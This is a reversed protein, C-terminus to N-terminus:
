LTGLGKAVIFKMYIKNEYKKTAGSFPKVFAKLAKVFGKQSVVFLHSFLFKGLNKCRM